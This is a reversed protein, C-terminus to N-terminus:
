IIVPLDNLSKEKWKIEVTEAKTWNLKVETSHLIDNNNINNIYCYYFIYYINDSHEM